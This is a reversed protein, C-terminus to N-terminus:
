KRILCDFISVIYVISFISNFLSMKDKEIFCICVGLLVQYKANNVMLYFLNANASLKALLHLIDYTGKKM